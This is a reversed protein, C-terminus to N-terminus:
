IIIKEPHPQLKIKRDAEINTESNHVKYIDKSNRGYGNYDLGYGILFDEGVNFGVYDIKLTGKYVDPKFLLTAIRIEEPGQEQMENIIHHITNGTDIIDEIIVVTRNKIDHTLGHIKKIVSSKMGDYSAIRIFSIECNLSLNKTLDAAFIYAGNLIVVFLPHRDELDHNIQAALESIRQQIEESSIAITFEKDFYKLM